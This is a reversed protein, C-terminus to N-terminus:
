GWVVVEGVAEIKAGIGTTGHDYCSDYDYYIESAWRVVLYTEDPWNWIRHCDLDEWTFVYYAFSKKVM